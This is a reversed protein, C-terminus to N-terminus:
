GAHAMECRQLPRLLEVAHHASEETFNKSSLFSVLLLLCWHFRVVDDEHRAQEAPPRAFEAAKRIPATRQFLEAPAAELRMLRFAARDAGKM